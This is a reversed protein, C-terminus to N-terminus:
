EKVTNTSGFGGYSRDTSDTSSEELEFHIFKEMILQFGTYPLTIEPLSNDVRTLVIKLSGRYTPDIIGVSNSLIYGTKVLSSRPVIKTYYGFSPQVVLGTDYMFTNNGIKKVLEIITIDYGIDSFRTKFPVVAHENKKEYKCVPPLNTKSLICEYQRYKYINRYEKRSNKYLDYLFDLANYNSFIILTLKHERVLGFKAKFTSKFLQIFDEVNYQTIKLICKCTSDNIEAHRDFYGRFFVKYEDVTKNAPLLEENDSVTYGLYYMSEENTIEM